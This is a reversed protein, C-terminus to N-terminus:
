QLMKEIEDAAQALEPKLKVIRELWGRANERNDDDIKSLVSSVLSRAQDINGNALHAIALGIQWNVDESHEAAFQFHGLTDEFQGRALALEGQRAHTFAHDPELEVAKAIDREAEDLRGLEVLRNARNRYLYGANPELEIAHSYADLAEDYRKLSELVSGLGNWARPDPAIELARQFEAVSELYEKRESLENAHLLIKEYEIASQIALATERHRKAYDELGMQDFLQAARELYDKARVYENQRVLEWGFNGIQAPISYQSGIAKYIKIAQELLEDAQSPNSVVYIKGQSSLVNAEGLKAGIEKFLTLAAEYSTLASDRDDRFQQVDGIAKRVNAEGLKDGIEKFLTLAAEYSTLASDRDDRFQQVDGIAQLVNAEGL